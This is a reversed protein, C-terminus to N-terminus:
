ATGAGRVQGDTQEEPQHQQAREQRHRGQRRAQHQGAEELEHGAERYLYRRSGAHGQGMM